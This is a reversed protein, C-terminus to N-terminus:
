LPLITMHRLVLKVANRRAPLQHLQIGRNSPRRVRGLRISQLQGHTLRKPDGCRPFVAEEHPQSTHDTVPHGDDIELVNEHVGVVRARSDPRPEDGRNELGVRINSLVHQHSIIFRFLPREVFGEAERLNM